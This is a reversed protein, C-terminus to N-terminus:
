KETTETKKTVKKKHDQPKKVQKQEAQFMKTLGILDFFGDDGMIAIMENMIGYFSGLDDDKHETIFQKILQKADSKTTITNDGDVGHHELLGAYFMTLAVQPIDSIGTLIAKIDKRDEADEIALMLGTIRETCENYLSAEMTFEFTYDVNGINIVKSM